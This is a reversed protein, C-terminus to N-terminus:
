FRLARGYRVKRETNERKIQIQIHAIVFLLMLNLLAFAFHFISELKIGVMITAASLWLTAIYYIRFYFFDDQFVILKQFFTIIQFKIWYSFEFFFDWRINPLTSVLFCCLTATFEWLIARWRLFWAIVLIQLTNQNKKFNKLVIKILKGYFARPKLAFLWTPTELTNKDLEIYDYFLLLRFVFFCICGFVNFVAISIINRTTSM